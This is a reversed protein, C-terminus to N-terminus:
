EFYLALWDDVYLFFPINQKTMKNNSKKIKLVTIM